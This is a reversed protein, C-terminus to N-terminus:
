KGRRRLVVAHGFIDEFLKAREEVRRRLLALDLSEPFEILFRKDQLRMDLALARKTHLRDLANALRLVAALKTVTIRNVHDLAMYDAHSPKPMARRHYRAVLAALALDRRGLGFIDSNLIIYQSHKHHSATNIAQGVEHLLAAVHLIVEERASIDFRDRLSDIIQLGIAAVHNAHRIDVGHKRALVKASNIVQRRYEATWKEGTAMEILIGTRLSVDAVHIHKLKLAEALTVAILLSPGLTEADTYTLRYERVLDDVTQGVIKRTLKRLTNMRLECLGPGDSAGRIATCAFRADAGLLVMQPFSAAGLTNSVQTPVEGVEARMLAMHQDPPADEAQVLARLRLSGLRYLHSTLVKGKRFLLTETSGGGVEVVMVDSKRFFAQGRLQPQVARYTLRSVEAEDLIEIEFGTAVLLRDRFRDSNGAERVASTAVVRVHREEVGYEALVDRFSRMAAVCRETTEPGISGSALTDSGLSVAHELEDLRHVGGAASVEGVVMRISTTGLEIVAMPPHARPKMSDTM